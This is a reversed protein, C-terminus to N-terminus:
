ARPKSKTPPTALRLDGGALEFVVSADKALLRSTVRETYKDALMKM